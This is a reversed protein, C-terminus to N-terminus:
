KKGCGGPAIETAPRLLSRVLEPSADCPLLFWQAQSTTYRLPSLGTSVELPYSHEFHWSTDGPLPDDIVMAVYRHTALSRDLEARLDASTAGLKADLVAGLAEGEAHPQKGALIADYSHNLVYVDGPLVRLQDVFEQSLQRAAATPVFRGPNYILAVLQAAAVTLTLLAFRPTQSAEAQSLLRSLAVGFLVATWAYVPMMANASAGAHSEVFWIGGLLAVTVFAYFMGTATKFSPRTLILAALVIMWAIALPALVQQPVYLAIQRGVLPLGRAVKFIYFNYWGGTAHNLLVISIATASLFTTLGAIVRRPRQWDACLIFVALPLVTQKTQFTAVWLLAALVPHGRRQALLALLLLCVFLSDVRGIDYFGGLIAYCGIFVGAAAIGAIHRRTESMVLAHVAVCSVVSSLASVLRLAAYGHNGVGVLRTVAASLYLYLPAYLFPVYDLTPAVYLGQGHAIRLVSVLMNSEIWEVEFPFWLRRAAAYLFSLLLFAALLGIVGRLLRQARTSTLWLDIREQLGNFDM